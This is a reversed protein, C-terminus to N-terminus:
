DVKEPIPKRHWLIYYGPELIVEGHEEHVIRAKSNQCVKLFALIGTFRESETAIKISVPLINIFDMPDKPEILHGYINFKSYYSHEMAISDIKMYKLNGQLTQMSNILSEMSGFGNIQIDIGFNSTVRELIWLTDVGESVTWAIYYYYVGESKLRKLREPEPRAGKPFKYIKEIIYLASPDYDTEPHLILPVELHYLVKHLGSRSERERELVVIHFPQKLVHIVFEASDTIKPPLYGVWWTSKENNRFRLLVPLSFGYFPAEHHLYVVPRLRREGKIEIQIKNQNSIQSEPIQNQSM